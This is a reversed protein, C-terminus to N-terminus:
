QVVTQIDSQVVTWIDTQEYINVLSPTRDTIEEFTLIRIPNYGRFIFYMLPYIINARGNRKDM